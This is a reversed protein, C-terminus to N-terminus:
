DLLFIKIFIEPWNGNLKISTLKGFVNKGADLLRAFVANNDRPIYGLKDLSETKVLIAMDDYKNDPERLLLIKQNIKLQASLEKMGNVYGTGAIRCEFLFIEQEFPLILGGAQGNNHILNTLGALNSKILDSM